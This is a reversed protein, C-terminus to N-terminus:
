SPLPCVLDEERQSHDVYEDAGDDDDLLRAGLAKLLRSRDGGAVLLAEVSGYPNHLEAHLYEAVLTATFEFLSRNPSHCSKLFYAKEIRDDRLVRAVAKMAFLPTGREALEAFCSSRLLFIAIRHLQRWKRSYFEASCDLLPVAGRLQTRYYRYDRPSIYKRLTDALRRDRDRIIIGDNLLHLVFLSGHSCLYSLTHVTYPSVNIRGRKYPPLRVKTVELVDIDSEDTSDKRAYSGFLMLPAQTDEITGLIEGRVRQAFRPMSKQGTSLFHMM